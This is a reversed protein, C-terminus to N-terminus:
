VVIEVGNNKLYKNVRDLYGHKKMAGSAGIVVLAKNGPHYPTTELESLKGCGFLIRTPMYYSFNLNM